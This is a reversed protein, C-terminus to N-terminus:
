ARVIPSIEAVVLGKPGNAFRVMVETGPQLDDLGGRRLTEIHVFIDGPDTDRVVFGYGKTRNFWKVVAREAPGTAELLRLAGDLSDRRPDRGSKTRDLPSADSTQAESEDLELVEDVQWGKARKAVQCVIVSGELADDKGYHRLATIHLLVDNRGTMQPDDPVIFGYGKAPDFWKVRGSIQVAPPQLGGGEDDFGSM